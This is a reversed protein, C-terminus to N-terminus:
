GSGIFFKVLEKSVTDSLLGFADEDFGVVSVLAGSGFADEDFEAYGRSVASSSSSRDLDRSPSRDLNRSPSRDLDRSPSRDLDRSLSRDLDGFDFLKRKIDLGLTAPRCVIV